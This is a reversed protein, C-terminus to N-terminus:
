ARKIAHVAGTVADDKHFCAPITATSCEDCPAGEMSFFLVSKAVTAVIDAEVQGLVDELNM